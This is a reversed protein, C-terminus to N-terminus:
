QNSILALDDLGERQAARGVFQWVRNTPIYTDPEDLAAMPLRVERLLREVPTGLRHMFDTFPILHGARVLPIPNVRIREDVSDNGSSMALPGAQVAPVFTLM